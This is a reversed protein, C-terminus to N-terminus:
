LQEEDFRDRMFLYLEELFRRPREEIEGQQAQLGLRDVYKTAVSLFIHKRSRSDGVTSARHFLHEILNLDDPVLRGEAETTFHFAKDGLGRYSTADSVQTLESERDDEDIVVTGALLDGIRRHGHTVAPVIWAIPIHDIVRALNRVVSAGFAVGHGSIMVTRIRFVKKGFTRGEYRLEAWVFYLFKLVFLLLLYAIVLIVTVGSDVISFGFVIGGITIVAIFVHILLIDILAAILRTGFSAVHYSVEIQEPTTFTIREHESEWPLPRSARRDQPMTEKM